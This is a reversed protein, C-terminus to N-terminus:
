DILNMEYFCAYESVCGEASVKQPVSLISMSFVNFGLLLPFTSPILYSTHSEGSRHADYATREHTSMDVHKLHFFELKFRKRSM